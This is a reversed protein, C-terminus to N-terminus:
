LLKVSEIISFIARVLSHVLTFTILAYFAFVVAPISQLSFAWIAIGFCFVVAKGAAYGQGIGPGIGTLVALGAGIYAMGQAFGEIWAVYEM